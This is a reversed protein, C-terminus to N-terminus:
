ELLYTLLTRGFDVENPATILAPGPPCHCREDGCATATAVLAYGLIMAHFRADLQVRFCPVTKCHSIPYNSWTVALAEPCFRDTLSRTQAVFEALLVFM